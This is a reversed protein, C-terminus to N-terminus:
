ASSPMRSLLGDRPSPSTYLLCNNLKLLNVIMWSKIDRVLDQVCLKTPIADIPRFALYLQNDDAYIHFSINHKRAIDGLPLTYVLFLLPGLVSGQPVGCFLDQKSSSVGNIVVSQKRGSLYSRFWDLAAGTIGLHTELRKLLIAHDVTDFTAILDLLILAVAQHNDLARLINNQVRLLATETSHFKKYASQMHEHLNNTLMHDTIRTAVVREILKSLYKLNSIPRFNKLIESDLIAKKILPLLIAEKLKEPMISQSLSLNVIKTVVPLLFDYCM